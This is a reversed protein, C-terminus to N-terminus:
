IKQKLGYGAPLPTYTPRVMCKLAVLERFKKKTEESLYIRGENKLFQFFFHSNRWGMINGGEKETVAKQFLDHSDYHNTTTKLVECFPLGIENEDSNYFANLCKGFNQIENLIATNAEFWLGTKHPTCTPGITCAPAM